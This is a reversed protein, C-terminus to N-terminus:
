QMLEAGKAKMEAELMKKAQEEPSLEIMRHQKKIMDEEVQELIGEAAASGHHVLLKAIKIVALKEM